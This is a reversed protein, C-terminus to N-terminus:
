LGATASVQRELIGAPERSAEVIRRFRALLLDLDPMAALLPQRHQSALRELLKLATEDGFRTRIASMYSRAADAYLGAVQQALGLTRRVEGNFPNIELAARCAAM